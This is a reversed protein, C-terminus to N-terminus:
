FFSKGSNTGNLKRVRIVRILIGLITSWSVNVMERSGLLMQFGILNETLSVM